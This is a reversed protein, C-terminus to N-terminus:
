SRSMGLWQNAPAIPSQLRKSFHSYMLYGVQLGDAGPDTGTDLIAIISGRGDYEPYKTMLSLAGTDKKPLLGHVPFDTDICTPSSM